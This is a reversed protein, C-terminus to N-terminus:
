MSISTQGQESCSEKTRLGLGDRARLGIGDKAKTRVRIDEYNCFIIKTDLKETLQIV